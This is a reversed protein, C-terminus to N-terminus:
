LGQPLVAPEQSQQIALSNNNQRAPSNEQNEM